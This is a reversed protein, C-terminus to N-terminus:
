NKPEALVKFCNAVAEISQKADEYHEKDEPVNNSLFSMAQNAKNNFDLHLDALIEPSVAGSLVTHGKEDSSMAKLYEGAEWISSCFTQIEDQTHSNYAQMFSVIVEDAALVALKLNEELTNHYWVSSAKLAERNVDSVYIWGKVPFASTIDEGKEEKLLVTEIKNSFYRIEILLQIVLGPDNKKINMHTLQQMFALLGFMVRMYRDFQPNHSEGVISPDIDWSGQYLPPIFKLIVDTVLGLYRTVEEPIPKSLLAPPPNILRRELISRLHICYNRIEIEEGHDDVKQAHHPVIAKKMAQTNTRKVRYEVSAEEEWQSLTFATGIAGNLSELDESVIAPEMGDSSRVWVYGTVVQMEGMATKWRTGVPPLGIFLPNGQNIVNDAKDLSVTKQASKIDNKELFMELETALTSFHINNYRAFPKSLVLATALLEDLIAPDAHNEWDTTKVLFGSQYCYAHLPACSLLINALSAIKIAADKSREATYLISGSEQNSSLALIGLIARTKVVATELRIANNSM